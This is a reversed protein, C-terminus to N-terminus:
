RKKIYPNSPYRFDHKSFFVVDMHAIRLLAGGDSLSSGHYSHRLVCSPCCDTACAHTGDILSLITPGV